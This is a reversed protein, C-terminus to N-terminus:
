CFCARVEAWTVAAGARMLLPMFFDEDFFGSVSELSTTRLRASV